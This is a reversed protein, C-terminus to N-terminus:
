QFFNSCAMVKRSGLNGRKHLPFSIGLYGRKDDMAIIIIASTSSVKQDKLPGIM